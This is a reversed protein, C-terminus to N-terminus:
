RITDARLREQDPFKLSFNCPSANKEPAQLPLPRGPIHGTFRVTFSQPPFLATIAIMRDTGRDHSLLM